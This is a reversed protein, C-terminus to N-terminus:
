YLRGENVCLQISTHIYTCVNELFSGRDFDLLLGGSFCRCLLGSQKM